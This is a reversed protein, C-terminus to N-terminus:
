VKPVERLLSISHVIQTAATTAVSLPLTTEALRRLIKYSATDALAECDFVRQRFERLAIAQQDLLRLLEEQGQEPTINEPM